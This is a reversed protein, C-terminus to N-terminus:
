CPFFTPALGKIRFLTWEQTQLTLVILMNWNSKHILTSCAEISQRAKGQRAKGQEQALMTTLKTFTQVIQTDEADTAKNLHDQAIM